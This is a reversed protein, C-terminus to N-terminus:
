GKLLIRKCSEIAPDSLKKNRAVKGSPTSANIEGRLYWDLPRVNLSQTESKVSHKAGTMAWTRAPTGVM